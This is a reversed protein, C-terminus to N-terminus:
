DINNRARKSGNCGQVPNLNNKQDLNTDNDIDNYYNNNDENSSNIDGKNKQQKAAAAEM